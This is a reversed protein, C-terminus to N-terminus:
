AEVKEGGIGGTSGFGADGRDGASMQEQKEVLVFNADLRPLLILQGVRDGENVYVKKQSPNYAMLQVEGRFGADIVGTHVLLGRRYFTSSRPLLLGWVNSPLDIVINTAIQVKHGPDVGVHRSSILDYGVDFEHARVPTTKDGALEGSERPNRFYVYIPDDPTGKESPKRVPAEPELQETVPDQKRGKQTTTSSRAM